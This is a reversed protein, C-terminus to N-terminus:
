TKWSRVFTVLYIGPAFRGRCIFKDALGDLIILRQAGIAERLVEKRHEFNIKGFIRAFEEEFFFNVLRPDFRNFNSFSQNIFALPFIRTLGLLHLLYEGKKNHISSPYIPGKILGILM